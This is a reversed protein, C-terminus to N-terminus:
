NNQYRSLLKTVKEKLNNVNKDVLPLDDEDDIKKEEDKDIAQEQDYGDEEEEPKMVVGKVPVVKRREYYLKYNIFMEINEIEKMVEKFREQLSFKNFYHNKELKSIKIKSKSLLFDLKNELIDLDIV